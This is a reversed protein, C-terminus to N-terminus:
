DDKLAVANPTVHMTPEFRAPRGAPVEDSTGGAPGGVGDSAHAQLDARCSACPGYFESDNAIHCRPCEFTM